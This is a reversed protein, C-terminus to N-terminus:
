RLGGLQILGLHSLIRKCCIKEPDSEPLVLYLAKALDVAESARPSMKPNKELDGYLRRFQESSLQLAKLELYHLVDISTRFTEPKSPDLGKENLLAELARRMAPEELKEPEPELLVLGEESKALVRSAILSDVKIGGFVGLLSAFTKDVRGRRFRAEVRKKSEADGRSTRTILKLALYASAYPDLLRGLDAYKHVGEVLGRLAISFAKNVIESTSVEPVLKSHSTFMSLAGSLARLFLNIDFTTGRTKIAEEVRRSSEELARREVDHLLAVGGLEKRWVVVVSADLAVKGRAIVRHKSETVMVYSSTVKLGAKRWGAEILATWASPDMHAYYTVILGDDKLLEAMRKFAKSLKEEFDMDSGAEVGVIKKFFEARGSNVSIELPAFREWQARIETFGTCKEDICEFFAEPYFRPKLVGDEVDILARKLWDYYFDSLETYPVDDRYPPDTVILDFREEGLKSLSIADDLLVRVKSSSGSVASALYSLGEVINQLSRLWTGTFPATPASDTWSWMMAIGRTSLSEEFKLWGPNWRTTTSNFDAYKCLAIALYTTVAEAYKFAEERSWGERLKEEEINKGAERILKVLKVLTLLQRPNFLKFFRNFGYLFVWINRSEYEPIPEIPIDPDGWMARLKELAKWLREEDEETAPEFELNREVVKVKALLRPRALCQKLEELSAEGNLYKEIKENWERLALKVYWQDGEGPMVRNCHLCRALSSRANINAEPVRYSATKVEVINESVKATIEPQGLERNLDVVNIEVRDGRAVPEMWALRKYRGAKEKVRALWYNGILPTYRNCYSCRVEWTGIYVAVDPDYLEKIDPDEILRKVIREGWEEVERVLKGDLDRDTAWKPVDLVAKLFVYATPLLEVAVVEGLGLRVAELPISGFGAFPDLLKTRSFKERLSLTLRPNVRQSARESDLGVLRLFNRPDTNEDLLAGAIISRAGILPKRTWWFVMEWYDPKGGGEKEKVSAENVVDVPFLPSEIFRKSV